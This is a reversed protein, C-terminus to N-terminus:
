KAWTVKDGDFTVFWHGGKLEFDLAVGSLFSRPNEVLCVIYNESPSLKVNHEGSYYGTSSVQKSQYDVILIPEEHDYGTLLFQEEDSNRAYVKIGSGSNIDTLRWVWTEWEDKYGNNKQFSSLWEDNKPIPDVLTYSSPKIFNREMAKQDDNKKCSLICFCIIMLLSKKMGENKGFTFSQCGSGLALKL